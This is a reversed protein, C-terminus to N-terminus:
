LGTSATLGWDERHNLVGATAAQRITAANTTSINGNYNLNDINREVATVYITCASLFTGEISPHSPYNPDTNYLQINAHNNKIDKWVYGVPATLIELTNCVSITEDIIAQQLANYDGTEGAIANFGQEYGWPMMYIIKCDKNQLRILDRLTQMSPVISSHWEPKAIFHAAGQLIVIDWERKEILTKSMNSTAHDSLYYDSGYRIEIFFSQGDTEALKELMDEIDNDHLYDNGLILVKLDNTKPENEDEKDPVKSTPFIDCNSLLTIFFLLVACYKLTKKLM